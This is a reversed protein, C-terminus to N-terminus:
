SAARLAAQAERLARVVNRVDGPTVTPHHHVRSEMAVLGTTAAAVLARISRAPLSIIAYESVSPIGGNFDAM